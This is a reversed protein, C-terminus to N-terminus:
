SPLQQALDAIWAPAGPYEDPEVAFARQDREIAQAPEGALVLLAGLAFQAAANWPHLDTSRVLDAIAARTDGLRARCVGRRFLTTPGDPSLALVADCDAAARVWQHQRLYVLARCELPYLATPHAAAAATLMDIAADLDGADERATAEEIRVM